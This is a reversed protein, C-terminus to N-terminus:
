MCGQGKRNVKKTMETEHSWVNSLNLKTFTDPDQHSTPEDDSSTDSDKHIASPMTSKTSLRKSTHCDKPEVKRCPKISTNHPNIVWQEDAVWDQLSNLDELNTMFKTMDKNVSKVTPDEKTIRIECTM